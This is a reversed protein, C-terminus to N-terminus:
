HDQARVQWFFQPVTPEQAQRQALDQQRRCIDRGVGLPHRRRRFHSPQALTHRGDALHLALEVSAMGTYPDHAAERAGVAHLGHEHRENHSHRPTSFPAHACACGSSRGRTKAALTCLVLCWIAAQRAVMAQATEDITTVLPLKGSQAQRVTAASVGATM